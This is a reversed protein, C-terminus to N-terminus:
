PLIKKMRRRHDKRTGDKLRNSLTKDLNSEFDKCLLTDSALVTGKNDCGSQYPCMRGRRVEQPM